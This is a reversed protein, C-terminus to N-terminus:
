QLAQAKGELNSQPVSHGLGQMSNSLRSVAPEAPFVIVKYKGTEDSAVQLKCCWIDSKNRRFLQM